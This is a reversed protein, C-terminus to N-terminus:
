GTPGPWAPPVLKQGLRRSGARSTPPPARRARPGGRRAARRRRPTSRRPPHRDRGGHPRRTPSRRRPWRATPSTTSPDAGLLVLARSRRRGDRSADGAQPIRWPTAAPAGGWRPRSGSAATTSAVRGPLLGPALGMDLAGRVNGRRLAVLFRAKPCRTRGARPGGGRAAAVRSAVSPRARRGRGRRRRAAPRARAAGLLTPAVDRGRPARRLRGARRTASCRRSRGPADGPRVSRRRPLETLARRSRRSSSSRTFETSPRGGCASSCCRCSTACTAPWCCWAGRHCADDITARPLGLVLDAALRRWSPTSRDTGIVGKLLQAWAYADENPCARRRRAAGRRGVRRGRDRRGGHRDRRGRGGRARRRAGVRRGDPAAVRRALAAGRRGRRRQGVEFAFRGKDCLWGHNVPDADIGLLRTLRNASSQVAARCGFSCTTCTSEM